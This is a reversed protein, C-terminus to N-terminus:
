QFRYISSSTQPGYIGDLPQQYGLTKLRYQLDWVDGNASGQKLNAAAHVTGSPFGLGFILLSILFGFVKWNTIAIGGKSIRNYHNLASYVVVM